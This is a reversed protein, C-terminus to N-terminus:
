QLGGIRTPSIAFRETAAAATIARNATLAHLEIVFFGAAGVAVGAVDTGIM